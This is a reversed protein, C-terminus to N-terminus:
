SGGGATHVTCMHFTTIAEDTATAGVPLLGHCDRLGLWEIGDLSTTIETM